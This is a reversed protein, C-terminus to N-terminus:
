QVTLASKTTLLTCKVQFTYKVVNLTCKERQDQGRLTRYTITLAGGRTSNAEHQILREVCGRTSYKEYLVLMPPAKITINYKRTTKSPAVKELVQFDNCDESM